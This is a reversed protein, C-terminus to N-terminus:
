RLSVGNNTWFTKDELAVLSRKYFDPIEESTIERHRISGPSIIEGIPIGKHDLLVTSSPLAPLNLPLLFVISFYGCFALFFLTILSYVIKRMPSM